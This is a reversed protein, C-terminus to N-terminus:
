LTTTKYDFHNWYGILLLAPMTFILGSSMDSGVSAATQVLNSELITGTRLLGKLVAIAIVAAPISATITMGIKLGLYANAAGMIVALMLGLLISRISFEQTPRSQHQM